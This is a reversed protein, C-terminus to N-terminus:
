YLSRVKETTVGGDDNDGDDFYYDTRRVIGFDISFILSTPINKLYQDLQLFLIQTFSQITRLLLFSDNITISTISKGTVRVSNTTKSSRYEWHFKVM